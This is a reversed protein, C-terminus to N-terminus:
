YVGTASLLLGLIALLLVLHNYIRGLPGRARPPALSPRLCKNLNGLRYNLIDIVQTNTIVM